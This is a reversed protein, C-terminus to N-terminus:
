FDSAKPREMQELDLENVGSSLSPNGRRSGGKEKTSAGGLPSVLARTVNSSLPPFSVSTLSGGM